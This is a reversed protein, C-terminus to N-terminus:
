FLISQGKRTQLATNVLIIAVHLLKTIMVTRHTPVSTDEFVDEDGSCNPLSCYCIYMCVVVQVCTYTCHLYGLVVKLILSDKKALLVKVESLGALKNGSGLGQM